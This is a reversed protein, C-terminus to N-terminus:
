VDGKGNHSIIFVKIRKILLWRLPFLRSRSEGQRSRPGSGYAFGRMRPFPTPETPTGGRQEHWPRPALSAALGSGQCLSTSESVHSRGAPRHREDICSWTARPSLREGGETLPPM